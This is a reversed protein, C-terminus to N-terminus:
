CRVWPEFVPGDSHFVSASPDKGVLEKWKFYTSILPARPFGGFLSTLFIEINALMETWKRDKRVELILTTRERTSSPSIPESCVMNDLTVAIPLEENDSISVSRKDFFYLVNGVLRLFVSYVVWGGLVGIMQCEFIGCLLIWNCWDDTLAMKWEFTFYLRGWFLWSCRWFYDAM